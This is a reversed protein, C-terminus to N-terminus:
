QHWERCGVSTGVTLITRGVVLPMSRETAPIVAVLFPLGAVSFLATVMTEAGITNIVVRTVTVTAIHSDITLVTSITLQASSAETM